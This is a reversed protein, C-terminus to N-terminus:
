LLGGPAPEDEAEARLHLAVVLPAERHLELRGPRLHALDDLREPGNPIGPLVPGLEVELPLEVAEVQHRREEVGSRDLVRLDGHVDRAHVLVHAPDRALHAVAQVDVREVARLVKALVDLGGDVVPEPGRAALALVEGIDGRREDHDAVGLLLELLVPLRDLLLDGEVGRRAGILRHEGRVPRILRDAPLDLLAVRPQEVARREVLRVLRPEVVWAQRSQYLVEVPLSRRGDPAPPQPPAGVAFILSVPPSMASRYSRPSRGGTPSIGFRMCAYTTRCFRKPGGRSAQRRSTM